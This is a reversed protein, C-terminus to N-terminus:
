NGEFGNSFIVGGPGCSVSGKAFRGILSFNGGERLEGASEAPAFRARLSYRGSQQPAADTSSSKLTFRPAGANVDSPARVSAAPEAAFVLAPVHLLAVLALSEFLLRFRCGM